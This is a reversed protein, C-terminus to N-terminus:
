EEREEGDSRVRKEMVGREEGDSRGREEMVGEM